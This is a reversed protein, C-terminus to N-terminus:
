TTHRVAWERGSIVAANFHLQIKGDVDVDAIQITNSIIRSSSLSRDDTTLGRGKPRIGRDTAKGTSACGATQRRDSM